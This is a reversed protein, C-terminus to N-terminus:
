LNANSSSNPYQLCSFTGTIWSIWMSDPNSLALAIQEPFISPVRKVLRPHSHPLDESGTRLSPDFSVTIPEFPGDLTTPIYADVGSLMCIASLWLWLWLWLWLQPLHLYFNKMTMTKQEEQEQVAGDVRLFFFHEFSPFGKSRVASGLSSYEM